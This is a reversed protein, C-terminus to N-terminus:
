VHVVMYLKKESEMARKFLIGTLSILINRWNETIFHPVEQAYTSLFLFWESVM